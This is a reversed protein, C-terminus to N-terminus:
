DKKPAIWHTPAAARVGVSLLMAEWYTLDVFGFKAAFYNWVVMALLADVLFVIVATPVRIWDNVGCRRLYSDPGGGTAAVPTDVIFGTAPM